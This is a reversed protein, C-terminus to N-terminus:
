STSSKTLVSYGMAFRLVTLGSLSTVFISGLSAAAAIFSAIAVVRLKGIRDALPGYMLQSSGYALTFATVVVSAITPAVGFSEAVSPLLADFMRLNAGSVLGALALAFLAPHM